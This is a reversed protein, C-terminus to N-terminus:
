KEGRRDAATTEVLYVLAFMTARRNYIDREAALLMEVAPPLMDNERRLDMNAEVSAFKVLSRRMERYAVQAQERASVNESSM